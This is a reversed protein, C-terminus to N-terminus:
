DLQLLKVARSTERSSFNLNYLGRDRIYFFAILPQTTSTTTTTACYSGRAAAFTLYRIYVTANQNDTFFNFKCFRGIKVVVKENKEPSESLLSVLALTLFVEERKMWREGVERINM